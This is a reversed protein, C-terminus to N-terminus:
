ITRYNSISKEVMKFIKEVLYCIIIYIILIDLYAEVFKYNANAEVRATATIDKIAMAFVLSTGKLVGVTTTCINPIAVVFAQPLIIRIYTQWGSLGSALAAERQGKDVTALAARFVESLCAGTHLTFVIFAYIIPHIDYANIPIRLETFLGKLLGPVLYFIIYIQIIMPTGRIFSIYIQSIQNLIVIRKLRIIAILFALPLGLFLSVVTILLTIRAASISKWFLDIAFDLDFSM